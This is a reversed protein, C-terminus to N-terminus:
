YTLSYVKGVLQLAQDSKLSYRITVPRKSALSRQPIEGATWSLMGFMAQDPDIDTNIAVKRRDQEATMRGRLDLSKVIEGSPSRHSFILRLAGPPPVFTAQITHADLQKFQIDLPELRTPIVVDDQVGLDFAPAAFRGMGILAMQEAGLRVGGGEFTPVFGADRFLLRPERAHTQVSSLVPLEIVRSEQAPNVVLYLSGSSDGSGYGYPEINGPIGGFTKTRGLAVVPAYMQQVKSFWAADEANLLDLNGYITKKWCGRASTLLLMGKWARKGRKYGFWTTSLTFFPDIRELPVGSQEYRRVMHDNYLDVSRWFNGQPVDSARTDGSYLSDFVELWTVDIPDKFPFPASTSIHDGGFGNFAVLMADPNRTRFDRLATRFAQQNRDRIELPSYSQVEKATAADFNAMDFEFMRVGREYWHQLTDMFDALFPGDAFSMAGLAYKRTSETAESDRWQPALNIQWLSNAGFWMGPRVGAEACAALWRDPGEPWDPQRWKRYGGDPDFWFANMMYYDFRVGSRKLRVLENLQRLALQETLPVHGLPGGGEVYATWNDYVWVPDRMAPTALKLANWGNRQTNNSVNPVPLTSRGSAGAELATVGGAAALLQMLRRRSFEVM